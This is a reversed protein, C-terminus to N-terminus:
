LVFPFYSVFLTLACCLDPSYAIHNILLRSLPDLNKLQASLQYAVARIFLYFFAFSTVVIFIIRATEEPAKPILAYFNFNRIFQICTLYEVM